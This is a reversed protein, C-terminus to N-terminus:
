VRVSHLIQAMVTPSSTNVAATVGAALPSSTIPLNVIFAAVAVGTWLRTGFLLLAVVAIGTPPWLPTVNEGVLALRLSLIATLGYVLGLAAMALLERRELGNRRLAARVMPGGM